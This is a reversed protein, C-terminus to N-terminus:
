WARARTMASSAPSEVAAAQMDGLRAEAEFSATREGDPIRADWAAPRGADPARGRTPASPAPRPGERASRAPRAPRPRTGPGRGSVAPLGAQARRGQAARCLQELSAHELDGREIRGVQSGSMGAHRGTAALSLGLRRRSARIEKGLQRRPRTRETAGLDGPRQRTAMSRMTVPSASMPSERPLWRAHDPAAARVLSRVRSPDDASRCDSACVPRGARRALREALSEDRTARAATPAGLRRARGPRRVRPSSAEAGARLVEM